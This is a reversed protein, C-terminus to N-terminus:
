VGKPASLPRLGLESRLGADATRLHAAALEWQMLFVRLSFRGESGVGQILRLEAGSARGFANVDPSYHSPWVIRLVEARLTELGTILPGLFKAVTTASAGYGLNTLAKAAKAEPALASALPREAALFQARLIAPAGAVTVSTGPAGSTTGAGDCAAVGVTMLAALVAGTVARRRPGRDKPALGIRLHREAPAQNL